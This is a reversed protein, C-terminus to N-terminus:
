APARGSTMPRRGQALLNIAWGLPEPDPQSVSAEGPQEEQEYDVGLWRQTPPRTPSRPPPGFDCCIKYAGYFWWRGHDADGVEPGGFGTEHSGDPMNVEAHAVVYLSSGCGANADAINLETFPITFTYTTRGSADYCEGGLAKCFQGPVPNRPIRPCISCTTVSGCMFTALRPVRTIWPIPSTSITRTM